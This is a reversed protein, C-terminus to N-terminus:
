SWEETKNKVGRHILNNQSIIPVWKSTQLESCQVSILRLIYDQMKAYCSGNSWTHLELYIEM